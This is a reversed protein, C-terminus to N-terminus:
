NWREVDEIKILCIQGDTTFNGGLIEQSSSPYMFLDVHKKTEFNGDKIILKGANRIVSANGDVTFTGEIIELEGLNGILSKSSSVIGNGSIVLDGDQEILIGGSITGGSPIDVSAPEADLKLNKNNLNLEVAKQIRLPENMVVDSGLVVFESSGSELNSKLEEASKVIIGKRHEKFNCISCTQSVDEGDSIWEEFSHPEVESKEGCECEKWHNENDHNEIVYEHEHIPESKCSIAFLAVLAIMALILVSKRM